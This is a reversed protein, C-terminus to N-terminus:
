AFCLRLGPRCLMMHKYNELDTGTVGLSCTVGLLILESHMNMNQKAEDGYVNTTM